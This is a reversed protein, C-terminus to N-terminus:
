VLMFLEVKIRPSRQGIEFELLTTKKLGDPLLPLRPMIVVRCIQLYELCTPKQEIQYIKHGRLDTKENYSKYVNKSFQRM